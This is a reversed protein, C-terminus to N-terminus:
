EIETLAVRDDKCEWLEETLEDAATQIQRACTPVMIRADGLTAFFVTGDPNKVNGIKSSFELTAYACVMYKELPGYGPPADVIRYFM